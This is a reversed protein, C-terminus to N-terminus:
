VTTSAEEAKVKEQLYKYNEAMHKIKFYLNVVHRIERKNPTKGYVRELQGALKRLLKNNKKYFLSFDNNNKTKIEEYNAFQM